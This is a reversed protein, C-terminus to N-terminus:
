CVVRRGRVRLVRYVDVKGPGCGMKGRSLHGRKLGGLAGLLETSSPKRIAKDLDDLQGALAAVIVNGDERAWLPLVYKWERFCSADLQCCLWALISCTLYEPDQMPMRSVLGVKSDHVVTCDM